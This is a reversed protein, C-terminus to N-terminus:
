CNQDSLPASHETLHHSIKELLLARDIPKTLYDDFGADLCRERDEKMAHATLAIIPKMFKKQRLLRTAQLGDLIPMQVDMLILDFDFQQVKQIALMGDCAIEIQLQYGGLYRTILDQNDLNDEVILIRSGTPILQPKVKKQGVDSPPLFVKPQIGGSPLKLLFRSGVDPQSWSLELDGDLLRALHRSLNLGLGTGGYKRTTSADAQSFPKFLREQEAITLGPGMDSVEFSLYTAPDYKVAILIRGRDSFKIANGIVNMLIQRLRLPDSLITIPNENPVECELTLGKKSAGLTLLSMVETLTHIPNFEIKETLIKGAEVKTLDLLDDVLHLLQNGNNRITEAFDQCEDADSQKDLILDAYGLIAGLPTRLEHSINALFTTKTRNAVEERSLNKQAVDLDQYSKLIEHALSQETKLFELLCIMLALVLIGNIIFTFAISPPQSNFADPFISESATWAVLNAFIFLTVTLPRFRVQLILGGVYLLTLYGGLFPSHAGGTVALSTVVSAFLGIYLPAWALNSLSKRKSYFLSFATGSIMAFDGFFVLVPMKFYIDVLTAAIAVIMGYKALAANVRAARMQKWNKLVNTQKDNTGM